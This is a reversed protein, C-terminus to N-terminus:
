RAEMMANFITVSVDKHLEDIDCETMPAFKKAGAEIMAATLKIQRHEAFHSALSSIGCEQWYKAAADRDAQTIETM